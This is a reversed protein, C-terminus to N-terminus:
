DLNGPPKQPTMMYSTPITPAWTQGSIPEEEAEERPLLWPLRGGELFPVGASAPAAAAEDVEPADEQWEEEEHQAAALAERLSRELRANDKKEKELAANGLANDKKEKELAANGLRNCEELHALRKMISAMEAESGGPSPPASEPVPKATAAAVQSFKGGKSPSAAATSGAVQSM